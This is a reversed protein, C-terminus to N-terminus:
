EVALPLSFRVTCDILLFSQHLGSDESVVRRVSARALSSITRDAHRCAPHTHSEDNISLFLIKKILLMARLSIGQRTLLMARPPPLVTGDVPEFRHLGCSTEHLSTVPLVSPLIRLLESGRLSELTSLGQISEFSEM